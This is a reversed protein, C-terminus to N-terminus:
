GPWGGRERWAAAMQRLGNELGVQPQWGWDNRFASDDVALNGFLRRVADSKGLPLAAALAAWRPLSFLKPMVGMGDALVEIMRRTSITDTDSLHDIRWRGNAAAARTGALTTSTPWPATAVHVIAHAANQLGLLSRKNNYISGLPLHKGKSIATLLRQLNGKAGPGHILPPRIIQLRIGASTCRNILLEEAKRKSQGYPDKPDPVTNPTLIAAPRTDEGVAKISSIFIIRRVKASIAANILHHTGTVNIQQYDADTDASRKSM